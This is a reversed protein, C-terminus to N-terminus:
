ESKRGVYWGWLTEVIRLLTYICALAAAIEPWPVAKFYGLVVLPMAGVDVKNKVADSL